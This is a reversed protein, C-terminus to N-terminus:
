VTPPVVPQSIDKVGADIGQVSAILADLDAQTIAVGSTIQAQLAVIQDKLAQLDAQVEAKEAAIDIAVTTIADKLDQITGMIMEGQLIIKALSATISALQSPDVSHTVHIEFQAM